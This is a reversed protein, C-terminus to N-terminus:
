ESLRMDKGGLEIVITEASQESVYPIIQLLLLSMPHKARVVKVSRLRM